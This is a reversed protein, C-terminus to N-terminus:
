DLRNRRKGKQFAAINKAIEDILRQRSERSAWAVHPTLWLKKALSKRLFPHSKPLPEQATVDAGYGAIWGSELARVVDTEVVVPGRALNLLYASSKMRKLAAADILGETAPSLACHLSVFDSKKLLTSLPVRKPGKGQPYRRGPLRAVLVQMQFAKAIRAVKKGIAGYGILGLTKGAVDEFPYDLLTFYASRSWEGALVARHHDGLRHAFALLLMFTHAVVTDTSYGAVNTVAVGMERAAELDINNFGTAAVCILKLKKFRSLNERDLRVKNTILIEADRVGTPIRSRPCRKLAHYNGLRRLAKLEVDGLDVTAPDLFVIKM